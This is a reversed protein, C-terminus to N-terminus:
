DILSERQCRDSAAASTLRSRFVSRCWALGIAGRVREGSVDRGALLVFVVEEVGAPMGALDKDGADGRHPVDDGNGDERRIRGGTVAEVLFRLLHQAIEGPAVHMVRRKDCVSDLYSPRQSKTFSLALLRMARISRRSKLVCWIRPGIGFELPLWPEENMVSFLSYM